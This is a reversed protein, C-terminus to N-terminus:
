WSRSGAVGVMLCYGTYVWDNGGGTEVVNWTSCRIGVDGHFMVEYVVMVDGLFSCGAMNRRSTMGRSSPRTDRM